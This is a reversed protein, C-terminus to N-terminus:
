PALTIGYAENEAVQPLTIRLGDPQRDITFEKLVPIDQDTIPTAPDATGLKRVTVRWPRAVDDKMLISVPVTGKRISGLLITRSDKAKSALCALDLGNGTVAIRTQGKTAAYWRYAHYVPYPQGQPTVIGGLYDDADGWNARCARDVQWVDELCHFWVLARGPHLRGPKDPGAGWEDCHIERIRQAPYAAKFEQFRGLQWKAREPHGPDWSTYHWAVYTCELQHDRCHDLFARYKDYSPFAYGPGCIALDKNAERLAKFAHGYLEYYKQIPKINCDPENVPEWIVSTALEGTQAVLKKVDSEYRNWDFDAWDKGKAPWSTILDSMVLKYRAGLRNVRIIAGGLGDKIRGRFQHGIRWLSPHLPEILADPQSDRLGGLFGTRPNVPGSERGVEVTFTAPEGAGALCAAVLLLACHIASRPHRDTM